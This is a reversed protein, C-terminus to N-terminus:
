YFVIMVSPTYVNLVLCDEQGKSSGNVLQMCIPGEKTADLPDNGWSTKALSDEISLITVYFTYHFTIFIITIVKFRLNGVPPEAYPIGRFAQFQRSSESSYMVSGIVKGLTPINVVPQSQENFYHNMYSMMMLFFSPTFFYM